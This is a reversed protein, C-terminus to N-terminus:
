LVQEMCDFDGAWRAVRSWYGGLDDSAREYETVACWECVNAKRAERLAIREARKFTAAEATGFEEVNADPEWKTYWEAVFKRM